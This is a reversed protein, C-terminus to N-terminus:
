VSNDLSRLISHGPKYTYVTVHVYILSFVCFFVFFYFCFLFLLYFILYFPFSCFFFVIAPIDTDSKVTVKFKSSDTLKSAVAQGVSPDFYNNINQHNHSSTATRHFLSHYANSFYSYHRYVLSLNVLM